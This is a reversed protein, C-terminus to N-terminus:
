RTIFYKCANRYLMVYYNISVVFGAALALHLLFVLGLFVAAVNKTEDKVAPWFTIVLVGGSLVAGVVVLVWKLWTVNIVWLIQLIIGNM